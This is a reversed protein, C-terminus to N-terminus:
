TTIGPGGAVPATAVGAYEGKWLFWGAAFLVVTTGVSGLTFLYNSVVPEYGVLYQYSSTFLGIVGSVLAVTGLWRPYQTTSLLAIGILVPVVGFLSGMLATFLGSAVHAVAVAESGGADAAEKLVTGDIAAFLYAVTVSGVTFLSAIWGWSRAPEEVLSRCLALIGLGGLAASWAILYHDFTWIDSGAALDAVGQATAVADSRPHILNAIAGIVAGAM